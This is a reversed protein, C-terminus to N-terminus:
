RRAAKNVEGSLEDCAIRLAEIIERARDLHGGALYGRVLCKVLNITADKVKPAAKLDSMAIAM